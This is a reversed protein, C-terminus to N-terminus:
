DIPTGDSPVRPPPDAQLLRELCNVATQLYRDLIDPRRTDLLRALNEAVALSCIKETVLDIRVNSTDSVVSISVNSVRVIDCKTVYYGPVFGKECPIWDWELNEDVLLELLRSEHKM